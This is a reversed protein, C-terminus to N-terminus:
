NNNIGDVFALLAVRLAGAVEADAIMGAEDLKRGQIPINRSADGILDAMMVTLTEILSAQAYSAYANANIFAVPKAMFEGSSVIWDLANKLAGPVGYAYEPSSILVGDSAQLQCRFDAVAPPAVLGERDLDPNFPPLEGLGSYITVVVNEPALRSAARLLTTNSSALRLSGSIALIKLPHFENM